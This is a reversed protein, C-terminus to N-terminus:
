STDEKSAEFEGRVNNEEQLNFSPLELDLDQHDPPLSEQTGDVHIERM